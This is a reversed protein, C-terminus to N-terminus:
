HIYSAYPKTLHYTSVYNNIPYKVKAHMDLDYQVKSRRRNTRPPLQYTYSPFGDYNVEHTDCEQGSDKTPDDSIAM